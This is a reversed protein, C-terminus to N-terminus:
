SENRPILRSLHDIKELVTKGNTPSRQAAHWVARLMEPIIDRAPCASWGEALFADDQDGSDKYARATMFIVITKSTLPLDLFPVELDAACTRVLAPPVVLCERLIEDPGLERDGSRLAARRLKEVAGTIHRTGITTAHVCYSDAKAAEFILRKSADLKGSLRLFLTKWPPASVWGAILDGAAYTDGDARYGSHFLKGCWQQVAIGIDASTKKGRVFAAMEDREPGRLGRLQDFHDELEQQRKARAPDNRDLFAPLPSGDPLRLDRMLQQHLLRHLWSKGPDITRVVEARDNLWNIQEAERVVLVDLLGPVHVRIAKRASHRFSKTTM